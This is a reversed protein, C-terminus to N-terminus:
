IDVLTSKAVDSPTVFCGRERAAILGAFVDYSTKLTRTHFSVLQHGVTFLTFTLQDINQTTGLTSFGNLM